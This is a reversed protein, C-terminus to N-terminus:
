EHPGGGYLCLVQVPHSAEQINGFADKTKLTITYYGHMKYQYTPNADTSTDGNGFNWEYSVAHASKNTLMLDETENVMADLHDITFDAILTPHLTASHKATETETILTPQEENAPTIENELAEKNCSVFSLMSILSAFLLIKKM